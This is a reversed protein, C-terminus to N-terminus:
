REEAWLFGAIWFLHCLMLSCLNAEKNQPMKSVNCKFTGIFNLTLHM